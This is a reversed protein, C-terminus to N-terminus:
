SSQPTQGPAPGAGLSTIGITPLKGVGAGGFLAHILDSRVRRGAQVASQDLRLAAGGPSNSSVTPFSPRARRRGGPSESHNDSILSLVVM